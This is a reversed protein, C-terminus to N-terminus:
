PAALRSRVGWFWSGNTHAANTIVRGPVGWGLNSIMTGQFLNTSYELQYYRGTSQPFVMRYQRDVVNFTGTIRLVSGYLAPDTDAVYEEYTTEGDGDYDADAAFDPSTPEQGRVVVWEEFPSLPENTGTGGVVVEVMQTVMGAINSATFVFTNTKGGDALPPTYSLEGTAPTFGYGSSATTGQLALVPAPVGSATETFVLNVDTTASYPGAGGTFVPATAATVAVSVTQTAVGAINSATFTFTQVSGGDAQPPTYSLEGTAPTFVYGSSATTGHLALAPAPGGSATETFALAVGSTTSYPGAGGTFAPAVNTVAKFFIQDFEAAQAGSLTQVTVFGFNGNSEMTASDVGTGQLVSAGAPIDSAVSGTGGVAPLVSTYLEWVGASERGHTVRVLFGVDTLGDALSGESTLITADAVGNTVRELRIKDGYTSDGGIALRYGDVTASALDAENAYLWIYMRNATTFELNRRGVWLGWEQAVGWDAIQTRLQNTATGAPGNQRLTMSGTAGAAADSDAVIIWNTMDGSWVPASTFDNDAFTDLPMSATLLVSIAGELGGGSAAISFDGASAYQLDTWTCSGGSLSKNDLGGAASLVFDGSAKSLSVTAAMDVDLNGNADQAQVVASFNQAIPVVTALSSFALRTATVIIRNRDGTTDTAAGGANASAFTSGATDAEAGTVAFALQANDAVARDFSALIRFTKAGGDAASLGALNTFVVSTGGYTEAIEQDGDYIAVQRLNSGNTVAFTIATLATGLADSDAIGGGDRITFSGVQLSAATLNTEQYSGYAISSPETFAADRIIDSDVSHTATGTVGKDKQMAGASTHAIASDYVGATAPKFRVYITTEAVVGGSPSLSIASASFGSGSTTSIEFGAPPTIVIDAALNVGSVTYSQEATAVNTVVSGFAMSGGSVTIGPTVADVAIIGSVDLGYSNDAVSYFGWTGSTTQGSAYYRLTVLAGETLDQLAAVGSFDWARDLNTSTAPAGILVFHSGDLSYAWQDTVGGPSNTLYSATGAFRGTVSTLSIKYGAAPSLTVEFYDTNNTSIGDNLFGATRFANAASSAPAGAGRVLNSSSDMNANFVEATWTAPSQSVGTYFDWAALTSPGLAVAVAVTQTVAGAINSATFTFTNTKGSDAFPPTYSLEGTAPTFSYGSSATTGQLALTPAPQGSATETFVLTVGTTTSYPGAGGTFAPASAATVAVSVTQTAVGTSNSATFTFTRTSGGDAQPPTYSLEGTAPTFSYGSSATTGQLALAPPPEGSATETFVLAVGSTTSHPGASSTFAPVMSTIASFFVQDFEGGVISSAGTLHSAALGFYGGTAPTYTSDTGAGQSLNADTPYDSAVNGTGNVTPLASTFLEWRGSSNRTVRVLFGIDTLGNVVGEASTIVTNAVVGDTIRELVIEDAGSDDGMALRYGDVTLSELDAENAYLWIFMRNGSTLSQAKRGVWLGWEQAVGWDTIQTRLHDTEALVAGFMQLTQSGTAGAAVTSNAQITWNTTDGTWVPAATFNGDAFTEFPTGALINGSTIDTLSGGDNASITFVGAVSYQLGTWTCTGSVPARIGVGSLTGSGSAQSLTVSAASDSDVSGLADQAQVAVTFDQAIGVGASLSSFALRDATVEIRNADGGTSTSAGGADAAAFLSGAMDATASTVAFALQANDAVPSNFSARIQFTKTGGDAASLGALNTFAISAAGAAEAIETSGDYLAVRRLHAGNTIALVLDTLTTAQADADAAAGGDRITFSGVQLSSATLDGEQWSAYAINAPETFGADRIIDSAENYTGTGTVATDKQSAGGSVHTINGAYVGPSAPAFRVYITTPPVSGGAAVLTLNSASTVFGSGSTTSIEFGAPPTIVINNSLSAGSVTYTQEASATGLVTNGFALAGSSVTIVPVGAVSSLVGIIDLGYSNDSPSSFGWGGSTTQGSAYYRLTVTTGAAVNQLASVGSFDWARGLSKSDLPSGILTFNAGDLSYAWQDRVGIYNIENTYFSATGVFRGTASNLSLAYGADASLTVQFYDNSATSIGENKFGITRFSDVGTSAAAASGRTITKDSVMRASYVEATWTAVASAGFFDWAAITAASSSSVAVAVTQTAVGYSNSATFIFNKTGVDAVPPTYVLQGTGPTFSYSGGTAEASQLALTIPAEGTASVVFALPEGVTASQPGLANFHPLQELTTVSAPPFSSDSTGGPSVTRVRFYYTAGTALNTVPESTGSSVTRNSYGPVYDPTSGSGTAVVSGQILLDNGTGEFGLAGATSSAWWGALRFTIANTVDQLGAFGALAVSLPITAATNPLGNTVFLDSGYADHSARLVLNSASTGSRQINLAINTISMAYGAAPQITWEYYDGSAFATAADGLVTWSTSNFRGANASATLGGGRVIYAPSQIEAAAYTSTGRTENGAYAGFDFAVLNTDVSPGGGAVQTFTENTSVDLQYSTAATVPSWAATFSTANTASAWVSSPPVPVVSAPDLITVANAFVSTRGSYSTNGVVVVTATYVGIAVPPNSPAYTASWSLGPTVTFSNTHVAGDYLTEVPADLTCTPMMQTIVVANSFVFTGGVYRSDGTVTVTADYNGAAQPLAPSYAVSWALGTTVTFTNTHVAGDYLIAVPADLSCTAMAQTIVVANTFLNTRGLYHVDGTVAVTANYTGPEVPVTPSYQVSWALGTTVMFTNTQALGTFAATIPVALTASAVGQTITVANSFVFVGGTVMQYDDVTVTAHYTGIEVPDAPSYVVYYPVGEPEVTFAAEHGQGNFPASVAANLSCTAVGTLPPIYSTMRINDLCADQNNSSTWTIRFDVPGGVNVGTTSNTTLNTIGASNATAITVWGTGSNYQATMSVGNDAAYRAYAFRFDGIGNTLQGQLYIGGATSKLVAGRTGDIIASADADSVVLANSLVWMRGGIAYPTYDSATGKLISDEFNIFLIGTNYPEPDEDNPIGDGDADPDCVDGIGDEDVDSQNSNPEYPCNDGANAVGDNDIDPDCADGLGDNDTDTQTPNFTTACNDADDLLGDHDGDGAAVVISGSQQQANLAGPTPSASYWTGTATMVVNPAQPCYDTSTDVGVKHLFTKSGPPVSESVTSPDDVGIDYTDSASALYVISDLINGFSDYLVLGDPGAQLTEPLLFDTNAVTNSSQSIVVFGLKNSNADIIGDDPVVFAPFTYTFEGGDVTDSGNFHTMTYGAMNLGAPAIIEVFDNSDTGNGNGQVENFMPMVGGIGSIVPFTYSNTTSFNTHIGEPGQFTYRVYYDIVDGENRAMNMMPTRWATGSNTMAQELWTGGQIRYMGKAALNSALSNPTIGATIAFANTAHPASPDLAARTSIYADAAALAQHTGPTGSASAVITWEAADWSDVPDSYGAKRYAASNTFAWAGAVAGIQGYIDAVGGSPKLLAVTDNGNLQGVIAAQQNAQKGPWSTSFANTSAAVVYVGGGALTNTLAITGSPTSAGDLYVALSYGTLDLDSIGTNCIEVFNGNTSTSFDVVESLIGVPTIGPIADILHFDAFVLRHDSAYVTTAAPLPSGYKTLGGAGNTDGASSYVEGTPSGYASNLIEESFLIYDLRYGYVDEPHNNDHTWTNTRGTQVADVEGMGITGLRGSPFLKYPLLWNPDTYWPMDSGDNFGSSLNPLRSEYDTKSFNLNQGAGISGEISENWDGMIAYETDFPLQANMNTLYNLIRYMEFARQCRGNADLTGSKTHVTFVHFPNLAGPVQVTAHLPWREFVAANTDVVTEKIHDTYTIPYKSWFGLKYLPYLAGGDSFAVYPYGLSAAMETWPEQDDAYLEQFCVIDPQVRAISAQVAAYDDNTPSLTRDDGTDIGFLVNYTAIRLQVAQAPIVAGWLAIGLVIGWFGKTTRMDFLLIGVAELNLCLKLM